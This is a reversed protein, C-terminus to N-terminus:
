ANVVEIRIKKGLASLAGEIRPLKTPHHPDLMRRVETEAIELSRALASRTFGSEQFAEYLAVKAALQASPEIAFKGIRSPLPIPEQSNVRSALVEDLCDRAEALCEEETDGQTIGEPFDPFTVTFGGDADRTLTVPFRYNM